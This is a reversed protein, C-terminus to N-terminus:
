QIAITRLSHKVYGYHECLWLLPQMCFEYKIYEISYIRWILCKQRIISVIIIVIDISSSGTRGNSSQRHRCMKKKDISSVAACLCLGTDEAWCYKEWGSNCDKGGWRLSNCWLEPWKYKACTHAKFRKLELSSVVYVVQTYVTLHLNKERM